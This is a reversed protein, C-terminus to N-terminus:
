TFIIFILLKVHLFFKNTYKTKYCIINNIFIIVCYINYVKPITSNTTILM